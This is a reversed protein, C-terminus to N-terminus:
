KDLLSRFSNPCEKGVKRLPSRPTRDTATAPQAILPALHLHAAHEFYAGHDESDSERNRRCHNFEIRRVRDGPLALLQANLCNM